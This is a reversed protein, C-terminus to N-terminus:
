VDHELRPTWVPFALTVFVCGVTRPLLHLDVADSRAETVESGNGFLYLPLHTTPVNKHSVGITVSPM